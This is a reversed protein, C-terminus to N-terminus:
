RFETSLFPRFKAIRVITAMKELDYIHAFNYFVNKISVIFASGIEDSVNTPATTYRRYSVMTPVTAYFVFFDSYSPVGQWDHASSL